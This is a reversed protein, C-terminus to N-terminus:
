KCIIQILYSYKISYLQTYIIQILTITIYGMVDSCPSEGVSYITISVIFTALSDLWNGTYIEMFRYFSYFKWWKTNNIEPEELGGCYSLFVQYWIVTYLNNTNSLFVQYWLVTHQFYSCFFTFIFMWHVNLCAPM